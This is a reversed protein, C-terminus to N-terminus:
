RDVAIVLEEIEKATDARHTYKQIIVDVPRSILECDCQLVVNTAQTDRNEDTCLLQKPESESWIQLVFMRRSGAKTTWQVVDNIYFVPNSRFSNSMLM